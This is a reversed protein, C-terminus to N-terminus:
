LDDALTIAELGNQALLAIHHLNKQQHMVVAMTVMLEERKIRKWILEMEGNATSVENTSNTNESSLFALNQSNSTFSSSRKMLNNYLDDIDIEDIGPKNRMIFAIQNWSSPLSRLFKQNIDEDVFKIQNSDGLSKADRRRSRRNVIVDRPKPGTTVSLNDCKEHELYRIRCTRIIPIKMAPSLPHLLFLDQEAM